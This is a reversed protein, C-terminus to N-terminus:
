LLPKVIPKDNSVYSFWSKGQNYSALFKYLNDLIEINKLWDGPDIFTKKKSKTNFARLSDEVAGPKGQLVYIKESGAEKQELYEM